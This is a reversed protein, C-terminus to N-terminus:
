HERYKLLNPLWICWDFLVEYRLMGCLEPIGFGLYLILLLLTYFSVEVWNCPIASVDSHLLIDPLVKNDM